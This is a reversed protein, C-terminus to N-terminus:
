LLKFQVLPTNNGPYVFRWLLKYLYQKIRETYCVISHQMGSSDDRAEIYFVTYISPGYPLLKLWSMSYGIVADHMKSSPLNINETGLM